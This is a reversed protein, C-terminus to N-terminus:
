PFFLGDLLGDNVGGAHVIAAMLRHQLSEMPVKPCVEALPRLPCHSTERLYALCIGCNMGCPAILNVKM